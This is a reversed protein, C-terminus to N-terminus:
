GIASGDNVSLIINIDQETEGTKKVMVVALNDRGETVFVEM